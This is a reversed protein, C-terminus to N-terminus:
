QRMKLVVIRCSSIQFEFKFRVPLLPQGPDRIVDLALPLVSGNQVHATGRAQEECSKELIRAPIGPPQLKGGLSRVLSGFPANPNKASTDLLSMEGFVGEVKDANQVNKVVERFGM